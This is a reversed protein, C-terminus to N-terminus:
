LHHPRWTLKEQLGPLDLALVPDLSVTALALVVAEACTLALLWRENLARITPGSRLFLYLPHSYLRM